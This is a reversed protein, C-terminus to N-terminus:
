VLGERIARAVAESVNHVQLKKYIRRIYTRVTDISLSLESAVQKYSLGRVLQLLVARERESLELTAQRTRAAPVFGAGPGANDRVLALISRAIGPTMPSGGEAVSRLQDIVEAVGARKLLYGDAGACIAALIKESEEFATLMVVTAENRAAKIARTAEIGSMGPLDIDMLVIDWPLPEAPPLRDFAAILLTAAPYSAILRFGPELGLLTELSGRYNPDDEVVAIRLDV